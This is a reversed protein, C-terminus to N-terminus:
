HSVSAEALFGPRRDRAPLPASRMGAIWSPSRRVSSCGRRDRHRDRRWPVPDQEIIMSALMLAMGPLMPLGWWRWSRRRLDRQRELQRRQYRLTDLVGADAPAPEAAALGIGAICTTSRGSRSVCWRRWCSRNGPSSSGRSRVWLDAPWCVCSTSWRMAGGPAHARPQQGTVCTHWRFARRTPPRRSGSRNHM